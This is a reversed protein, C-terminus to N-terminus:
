ERLDVLWAPGCRHTLILDAALNYWCTGGNILIAASSIVVADRASILDTDPNFM